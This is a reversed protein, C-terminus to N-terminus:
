FGPFNSIGPSRWEWELRSLRRVEGEEKEKTYVLFLKLGERRVDPNRHGCGGHRGKALGNGEQAQDENEPEDPACYRIVKTLAHVAALRRKPDRTFRVADALRPDSDDDDPRFV